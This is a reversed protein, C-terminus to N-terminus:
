AAPVGTGQDAKIVRALRRHVRLGAGPGGHTLVVARHDVVRPEGIRAGPHGLGGDPALAAAHRPQGLLMSLSHGSDSASRMRSLVSLAAEASWTSSRCRSTANCTM